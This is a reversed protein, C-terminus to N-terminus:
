PPQNPAVPEFSTKEDRVTMIVARRDPYYALFRQNEEPGRDWVWLVTSEELVADNFVWGFHVHFPRELRVFVIHKGGAKVLADFIRDRPNVSQYYGLDREISRDRTLAFAQAVLILACAAGCNKRLSSHHLVLRRIGVVVLFLYLPAAVSQYHSSFWYSLVLALSCIALSAGALWTWPSPRILLALAAFPLLVFGVFREATLWFRHGFVLAPHEHFRSLPVVYERYYERLAPNIFVPEPRPSQWTFTPSGSYQQEYELYPLRWPSGTVRFNYYALFALSACVVLGGPLLLERLTQSLERRDRICRALVVISPIVCVLAGEFPRTLILIAAGAGLFTADSVRGRRWIRFAGGFVLAGGAAPLAGGWYSQAWYCTIGFQTITLVGGLFAWRPAFFGRLLWTMCAALLASELWIGFIPHGIWYGVAIFLSHGPLYKAQYTPHVLIHHTEFFRWLPHPPNTLQFQAFTQGALLYAFEDHVRPTYRPIFCGVLASSAFSLLAVLAYLRAGDWWRFRTSRRVAPQFPPPCDPLPRHPFSM